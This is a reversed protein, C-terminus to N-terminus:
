PQVQVLQAECGIPLGLLAACVAGPNERDYVGQLRAEVESWPVRSVESSRPQALLAYVATSEGEEVQWGVPRGESLSLDAEGQSMQQEHFPDISRADVRVLTVWSDVPLRGRFYLVDGPQHLHGRSLRTPPQEGSRVSMALDVIPADVGAGKQSMGALDGEAELSSSGVDSSSGDGALPLAGQEGTPAGPGDEPLSVVVLVAAAVALAPYLWVPRPSDLDEPSADAAMEQLVEGLVRSALEPPPSIEPLDSLAQDLDFSM